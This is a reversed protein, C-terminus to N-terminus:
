SAVETEDTGGDTREASERSRLWAYDFASVALFGAGLVLTVFIIVRSSGLALRLIWAQFALFVWVGLNLALYERMRPPKRRARRVPPPAPAVGSM